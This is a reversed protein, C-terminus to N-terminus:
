ILVSRESGSQAVNMQWSESCVLSCANERPWHCATFSMHPAKSVLSCQPPLSLIMCVPFLHLPLSCSNDHKWCRMDWSNIQTKSVCQAAMICWKKLLDQVVEIGKKRVVMNLGFLLDLSHCNAILLVAHFLLGGLTLCDLSFISRAVASPKTGGCFAEHWVLLPM